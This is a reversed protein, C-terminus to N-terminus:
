FTLTGRVSVPIDYITHPVPMDFRNVAFKFALDVGFPGVLLGGGGEAFYRRGNGQDTTAHGFGGLVFAHAGLGWGPSRDSMDIGAGLDYARGGTLLYSPAPAPGEFALRITPLKEISGRVALTPGDSSGFPYLTVGVGQGQHSFENVFVHTLGDKTSYQYDQLHVESVPQALLDELPHKDFSYPQIYQWEYSVSIFHRRAKRAKYVDPQPAAPSATSAVLALAVISQVLM